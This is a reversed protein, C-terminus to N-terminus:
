GATTPAVGEGTGAPVQALGEAVVARPDDTVAAAAVMAAVWMEGYIGNRVHSICADRWALEAARGPRGPMAYGFFDGRIQAGIWERYPNRHTASHPPAIALM